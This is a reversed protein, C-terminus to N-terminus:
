QALKVAVAKFPPPTQTKMDPVFLYKLPVDLVYATDGVQTVGVPGQFGSQVTEVTATDGKVTILDLMGRTEGEVMLLKDAGSSRMGDSHYIPRSTQLKTIKGASGDANVAVRYLGDGEFVNAYVSGDGLVAIGDLQPGKVEWRPDHAWIELTQAGPKLRLIRGGLTDSVYATGDAGVAIDNCLAPQGLLTSAPLAISGKPAGTKLDFMKLATPKAGTAVTIGFGAMDSSCAYLTNSRDDALVGLASLLGNTGPKVWESAHDQGPAARFIRGGAISSFFMTGDATSTVSEPFDTTGPVVVDAARAAQSASFLGLVCLSVVTLRAHPRSKQDFHRM